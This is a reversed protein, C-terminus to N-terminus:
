KEFKDKGWIRILLAISLLFVFFILISIIAGIQPYILFYIIPFFIGIAVILLLMKQVHVWTDFKKWTDIM